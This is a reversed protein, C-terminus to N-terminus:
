AVASPHGKMRELWAALSRNEPDLTQQVAAGSALFRFLRIVALMLRERTALRRMTKSKPGVSDHFLM